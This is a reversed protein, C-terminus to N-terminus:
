RQTTTFRLVIAVTARINFSRQFHKELDAESQEIM